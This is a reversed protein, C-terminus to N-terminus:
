LGCGLRDALLSLREIERDKAEIELQMLEVEAALAANLQQSEEIEKTLEIIM